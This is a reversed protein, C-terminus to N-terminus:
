PGTPIAFVEKPENAWEESVVTQIEYGRYPVEIRRSHDDRRPYGLTFVVRDYHRGELRSRWYQNRLRFEFPKRGERIALFWKKKLPLVLTKM